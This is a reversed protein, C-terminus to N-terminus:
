GRTGLANCWAALQLYELKKFLRSNPATTFASCVEQQVTRRLPHELSSSKNMQVLPLTPKLIIILLGDFAKLAEKM